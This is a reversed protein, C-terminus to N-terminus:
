NSTLILQSHLLCKIHECKLNPNIIDFVKSQADGWTKIADAYSLRNAQNAALTVKSNQLAQRHIVNDLAKVIRGYELMNCYPSYESGNQNMNLLIRLRSGEVFSCRQAHHPETVVCRVERNNAMM